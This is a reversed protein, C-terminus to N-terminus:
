GVRSAAMCAKYENYIPFLNQDLLTEFNREDVQQVVTSQSFRKRFDDIFEILSMYNQRMQEERAQQDRLLEEM